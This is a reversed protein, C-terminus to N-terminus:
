RSNDSDDFWGIEQYIVKNFILRRIRRVFRGGAVTFCYVQIPALLLSTAALAVVILSWFNAEKHLKHPPQYFNGVISSLLLGFVPFTLGNVAAVISGLLLVPAEPKNLMALRLFHVDKGLNQLGDEVDGRTKFWFWSIFGKNPNSNPNSKEGQLNEHFDEEGVGSSGSSISKRISLRRSGVRCIAKSDDM